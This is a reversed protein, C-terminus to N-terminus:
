KTPVITTPAFPIDGKQHYLSFTRRTVIMRPIKELVTLPPGKGVHQVVWLLWQVRHQLEEAVLGAMAAHLFRFDMVVPRRQGAHHPFELCLRGDVFKEGCLM